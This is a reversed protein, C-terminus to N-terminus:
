FRSASGNSLGLLKFMSINIKSFFILMIFITLSRTSFSLQEVNLGGRLRDYRNQENGRYKNFSCLVNEAWQESLGALRWCAFAGSHLALCYSAPVDKHQGTNTFERGEVEKLIFWRAVAHKHGHASGVPWWGQHTLSPRHGEGQRIM